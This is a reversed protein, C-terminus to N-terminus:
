WLIHTQSYCKVDLDYKMRFDNQDVEMCQFMSLSSDTLTPHLLFLIVIFAVIINRKFEDRSTRKILTSIALIPMLLVTLIIPLLALMFMRFTTTSPFFLKFQSDSDFCDLSFATKSGSGVIQLPSFLNTVVDPFRMNYSMTTAMIQCYNTM